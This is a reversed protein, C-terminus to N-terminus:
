RSLSYDAKLPDFNPNYYPDGTNGEAAMEPQWRDLLLTQDVLNVNAVPSQTVQQNLVVRPTFLIRRGAIRLRLCLDVDYFQASFHENFGGLERFLERKVILCDSAIANVERACILSGAYGDAEPNFGRMVNTVGAAGVAIGASQVSGDASLLLGGAAGVSPQAAYYVLHNIWDPTNVKVLSNLFLLSASEVHQAGLNYARAYSFSGPLYFQRLSLREVMGRIGPTTVANVDDSVLIVEYNSDESNLYISHLCVALNESAAIHDRTHAVIISVREPKAPSEPAVHLQHHPSAIVAKAPLKLRTLQENVAACQLESINPKAGSDKAISGPLQRWHYLLKPIHEIRAAIESLRLMLEFDQVGDYGRNLWGAQDLLSRRFCLLHGVYMVGRFYEPSWDPKFFPYCRAGSEDLKDEDSYFVDVDPQQNLRQVYEFLANPALEDDHDLLAIFEGEAMRLGENTNEAIGLNEPLFKIRIRQDLESYDTLLQRLEDDASGGNVLCLEWRDYTLRLVSEVTARLVQLPTRYVPTVISILPRYSFQRSRTRQSALETQSPEHEALWTQYDFTKEAPSGSEPLQETAAAKTTASNAVPAFKARVRWVMQMMQWARSSTLETLQRSLSNAAQEAHLLRDEAIQKQLNAEALQRNLVDVEHQKAALRANAEVIETLRQSTQAADVAAQGLRQFFARIRATEEASAQCLALLEAPVMQGTTLLGLGGSHTFEFHPYQSKLEMWFQRVERNRPEEGINSLLVVGRSSVKPLWNTFDRKVAEYNPFSAIHLLDVSHDAANENATPALVDAFKRQILTSFHGFRTKHQDRLEALEENGDLEDQLAAFLRCQTALELREVAQCFASYSDGLRNSLEALSEPRLASVLFFAFPVHARWGSEGSLREPEALVLPHNLPNFDSTTLNKESQAFM